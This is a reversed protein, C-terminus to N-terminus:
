KRCVECTIGTILVTVGCGFGGNYRIEICRVGDNLAKWMYAKM